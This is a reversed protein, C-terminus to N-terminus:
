PSAKAELISVLYKYAVTIQKFREESLKDGKTADPHYRKVLMKYHKKLEPLSLPADLDLSNWAKREKITLPRQYASRYEAATGHLFRDLEEQLRKSHLNVRAGTKWTPRNGSILGEHRFREIEEASWGEFFNWQQNHERVHALCLFRYDHLQQRSRPAKFEGPETCGPISCRTAPTQPPSPKKPARPPM